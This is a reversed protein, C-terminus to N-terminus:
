FGVDETKVKWEIQEKISERERERHLLLLLRLRLRLMLMLTRMAFFPTEEAFRLGRVGILGRGRRGPPREFGM